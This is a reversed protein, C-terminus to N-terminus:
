APEGEIPRLNDVFIGIHFVPISCDGFSCGAVTGDGDVCSAHGNGRRLIDVPIVAIVLRNAHLKM